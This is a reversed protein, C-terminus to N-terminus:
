GPDQLFAGDPQHLLEWPLALIEPRGSQITVLRGPLDLKLFDGILHGEACASDPFVSKYLAIGMKKFNSVIRWARDDDVDATYQAGYTELYWRVEQLAAAAIPNQFGIPRSSRGDFTVTLEHADSFSLLLEISMFDVTVVPFELNRKV